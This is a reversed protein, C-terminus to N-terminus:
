LIKVEEDLLWEAIYNFINDGIETYFGWREKNFFFIRNMYEIKEPLEEKKHMKNIIEIIKM